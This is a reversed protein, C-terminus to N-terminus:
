GSERSLYDEVTPVPMSEGQRAASIYATQLVLATM